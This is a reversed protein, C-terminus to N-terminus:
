RKLMNKEFEAGAQKLATRLFPREEITTTGFELFKSYNITSGVIAELPSTHEQTISGVLAGTDNAPAEGAASARHTRNPNYKKYVKGTKSGSQISRKALEATRVATKYIEKSLEEEAKKWKEKLAGTAALTGTLKINMNSRWTGHRATAM